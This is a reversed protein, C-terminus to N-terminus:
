RAENTLNAITENVIAAAEAPDITGSQAERTLSEVTWAAADLLATLSALREATVNDATM